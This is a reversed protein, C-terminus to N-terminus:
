FRVGRHQIIITYYPYGSYECSSSSCLFFRRFRRQLQPLRQAFLLVAAGHRLAPVRLRVRQIQSHEVAGRSAERLSVLGHEGDTDTVCCLYSVVQWSQDSNEMSMWPFRRGASRVLIFILAILCAKVFRWLEQKRLVVDVAIPVSALHLLCGIIVVVFYLCNSFCSCSPVM